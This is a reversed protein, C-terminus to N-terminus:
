EESKPYHAAKVKCACLRSQTRIAVNAQVDAAKRASFGIRM